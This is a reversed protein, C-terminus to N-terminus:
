WIAHLAALLTRAQMNLFYGRGLLEGAQALSVWVYDDPVDGLDDPAEVVLYRNEARDFRAGEEPALTGDRWRSVVFIETGGARRFMTVRGRSVCHIFAATLPASVSM